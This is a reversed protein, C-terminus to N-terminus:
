RRRPATGGAADSAGTALWAHGFVAAIVVGAGAYFVPGLERSEGLFAAAIAIAYIPELNVALQATFASVHRLAVLSLAFPLVTCATALMLLLGLDRASPLALWGGPVPGPAAAGPLWPLLLLMAVLGAAFEIATVGLADRDGIWRKNLTMFIAALLASVVGVGLGANMSEPIGGAIMVIGPIVVLGLALDGRRLPARHVLPEFLAITAPAIALCITAVSANALKISGYFALWHLAVLVGIGAYRWCLAAPLARVARWVRPLPALVAVVLILRWAVLQAAPLSILRGFIATFAWLLVCVHIQLLARRGASV